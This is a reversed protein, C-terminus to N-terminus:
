KDQDGGRRRKKNNNNNHQFVAVYKRMGVSVLHHM